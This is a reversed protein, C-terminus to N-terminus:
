APGWNLFREEMLDGSETQVIEYNEKHLGVVVPVMVPSDLSYFWGIFIDVDDSM